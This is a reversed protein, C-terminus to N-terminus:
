DFIGAAGSEHGEGNVFANGSKVANATLELYSELDSVAITPDPPWSRYNDLAPDRSGLQPSHMFMTDHHGNQSSINSTPSIYFRYSCSCDPLGFGALDPSVFPWASTRSSLYRLPYRQAQPISCSTTATSTVESTVEYCCRRWRPGRPRHIRM